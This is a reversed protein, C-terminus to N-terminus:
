KLKYFASILKGKKTIKEQYIKFGCNNCYFEKLNKNDYWDVCIHRLATRDYIESAISLPYDMVIEGPIHKKHKDSRDLKTILLAQFEGNKKADSSIKRKTKGSVDKELKINIIKLCFYGMIELDSKDIILYTRFSNQDNMTIAKHKLSHAISPNLSTQFTKTEQSIYNHFLANDKIANRLNSISYIFNNLNKTKM